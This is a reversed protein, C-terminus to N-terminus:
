TASRRERTFLPPRGMFELLFAILVALFLGAIAAVVLVLLLSVFRVPEAPAVAPTAARVESNAAARALRLEAQKNSLAKLSEWALDRKQIFQLKIAEEAEVKSQLQRAEEELQAITSDLATDSSNSPLAEATAMNLLTTAQQQGAQPLDSGTAAEAGIASFVGVKFIAPYADEVAQLLNNEDPLVLPPYQKGAQWAENLDNIQQDLEDIQARLATILGNIDARLSVLNTDNSEPLLLQYTPATVATPPQGTTSPQIVQVNQVSPIAQQSGDGLQDNRITVSPIDQSEATYLGTILSPAPTSAALQIKLLQLALATNSVSAEGGEELQRLLTQATGLLATTQLWRDYYQRLLVRDRETHVTVNDALAANYADMYARVLGRQGIQEERFALLQNSTQADLYTQIIRQYNNLLETVFTNLAATKGNQLQNITTNREQLQRRLSELSSAAMFEELEAQATEYATQADALENAVSALMEDPVQGYIRNVEQVYYKAWANAIAAAKEPSDTTVSIKILDSNGTRGEPTDLEAEVSELLNIPEREDETLMSGLETVVKDAISGSLVLALLTTRRSNLDQGSPLDSSTQFRSDFQVNTSTRVIAATSTAEYVPQRVARLGLVGAAAAVVVLLNIFLIERWRYLVTELYKRLDIEDEVDWHEAPAPSSAPKVSM